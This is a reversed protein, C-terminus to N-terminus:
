QHRNLYKYVSMNDPRIERVLSGFIITAPGKREAFVFVNLAMLIECAAQSALFFLPGGSVSGIRNGLCGFCYKCIKPMSTKEATVIPWLRKSMESAFSGTDNYGAPCIQKSCRVLTDILSKSTTRNHQERKSVNKGPTLVGRQEWLPWQWDM